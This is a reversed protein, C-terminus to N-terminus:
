GLVTPGLGQFTPDSQMSEAPAHGYAAQLEDPSVEVGNLFAIALKALDMTLGQAPNCRVFNEGPDLFPMPEKNGSQQHQIEDKRSATLDMDDLAVWREIKPHQRLWKRIEKARKERVNAHLAKVVGVVNEGGLDPTQGFLKPMGYETLQNNVGEVLTEAKRWDSSLVVACRTKQVLHRLARMAQPWFDIGALNDNSSDGMLAVRSGDVLMTRVHQAFDTRGHVSRLVGDIDLFIAKTPEAPPPIPEVWKRDEIRPAVQTVTAEPLDGYLAALPDEVKARQGKSAEGDGVDGEERLRVRGPAIAERSASSEGDLTSLEVVEAGPGSGFSARADSQWKMPIHPELRRGDLFTGHTSRLDVLFKNGDADQCIAAHMRSALEGRLRLDVGSDARGITYVAKTSV